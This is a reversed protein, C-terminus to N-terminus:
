GTTSIACTGALLAETQRVDNALCARKEEFWKLTPTIRTM